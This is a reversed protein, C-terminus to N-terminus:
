TAAHALGGLACKTAHKAALAVTEGMGGALQRGHATCMAALWELQGATVEVGAGGKAGGALLERSALLAQADAVRSYLPLADGHQYLRVLCACVLRRM